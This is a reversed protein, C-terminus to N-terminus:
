GLVEILEQRQAEDPFIRELARESMMEFAESAPRTGRYRIKTFNQKKEKTIVNTNECIVFLGEIPSGDVRFIDRAVDDITPDSPDVEMVGCVVQKMDAKFYESQKKITHSVIAGPQHPAFGDVEALCHLVRKEIIFMPGSKRTDVYKVKLIQELYTGPNEYVAELLDADGIGEFLDDPVTNLEKVM